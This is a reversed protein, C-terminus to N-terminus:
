ERVKEEEETYEWDYVEQSEDNADPNGCEVHHLFTRWTSEISDDEGKGDGDLLLVFEGGLHRAEVVEQGTWGEEIVHQGGEADNEGTTGVVRKYAVDFDEIIMTRRMAAWDGEEQARGPHGRGRPDESITSCDLLCSIASDYSENLRDSRGTAADRGRDRGCSRSAAATRRRRAREVVGEATEDERDAAQYAALTVPEDDVGGTPPEAGWRRGIGATKVAGREPSRGGCRRGEGTRQRRDAESPSARDEDCHVNNWCSTCLDSGEM